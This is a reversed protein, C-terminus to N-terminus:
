YFDYINWSLDGLSKNTKNIVNIRAEFDDDGNEKFKTM